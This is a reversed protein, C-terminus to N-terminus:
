DIEGIPSSPYQEEIQAMTLGQFFPELAPYLFARAPTHWRASGEGFLFALPQNIDVPTQPARAKSQSEDSLQGGGGSLGLVFQQQQQVAAFVQQLSGVAQSVIAPDCNYTNSQLLNIVDTIAGLAQQGPASLSLASEPPLGPSLINAAGPLSPGAIESTPRTPYPPPLPANITGQPPKYDPPLKPYTYGMDHYQSPVAIPQGPAPQPGKAALDLPTAIGVGQKQATQAIDTITNYAETQSSVIADVLLKKIATIIKSAYSNAQTILKQIVSVVENVVTDSVTLQQLITQYLQQVIDTSTISASKICDAAAAQKGALYAIKDCEDAFPPIDGNYYAPNPLSEPLDPSEM